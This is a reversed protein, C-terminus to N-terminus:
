VPPINALADYIPSIRNASFVYCQASIKPLPCLERGMHVLLMFIKKAREDRGNQVCKVM